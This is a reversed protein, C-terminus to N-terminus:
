IKIIDTLNLLRLCNSRRLNLAAVITKRFLNFMALLDQLNDFTWVNKLCTSLSMQRNDVAHSFKDSL